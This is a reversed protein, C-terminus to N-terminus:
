LITKVAKTHQQSSNKAFRSVVSIAFAIDPRTEIISFMISGTMDQYRKKKTTTAQRETWFQLFVLEKMLTITSHAKDLYFKSLIKDM